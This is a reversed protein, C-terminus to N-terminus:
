PPGARPDVGLKRCRLWSRAVEPRVPLDEVQGGMLDEWDRGRTGHGGDM